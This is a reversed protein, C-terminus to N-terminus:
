PLKKIPSSNILQCPPIYKEFLPNPLTNLDLGCLDCILTDVDFIHGLETTEQGDDRYIIAKKITGWSQPSDIKIGM